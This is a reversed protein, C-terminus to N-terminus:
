SLGNENQKGYVDEFLMEREDKLAILIDHSSCDADKMAEAFHRRAQEIEIKGPLVLIADGIPLITVPSGENIMGRDRISKPITLKGDSRIAASFVTSTSM